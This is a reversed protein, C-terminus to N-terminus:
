RTRATAEATATPASCPAAGSLGAGRARDGDPRHRRKRIGGASRGRRASRAASEELDCRADVYSIPGVLNVFADLVHLGAGTMGAGPSESPDDRWGGSVRTSHENSFHGEIHMVKGIEGSEVVRKLERM